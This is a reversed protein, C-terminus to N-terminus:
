PTCAYRRIFGAKPTDSKRRRVRSKRPGNERLLVRQSDGGGRRLRPVGVARCLLARRDAYTQPLFRGYERGVTSGWSRGRQTAPTASSRSRRRRSRSVSPTRSGRRCDGPLDISSSGPRKRRSRQTSRGANGTRAARGAIRTTTASPDGHYLRPARGATTIGLLTVLSSLLREGGDVYRAHNLGRLLVVPRRLEAGPDYSADLGLFVLAVSPFIARRAVAKRLPDLANVGGFSLISRARSAARQLDRSDARHVSGAEDEVGVARGGEVLIRRVGNKLFLRGDRALTVGAVADAVAQM